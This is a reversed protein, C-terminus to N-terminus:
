LPLHCLILDRLLNEVGCEDHVGLQPRSKKLRYILYHERVFQSFDAQNGVALIGM